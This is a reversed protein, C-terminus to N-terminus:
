SAAKEEAAEGLIRRRDAEDCERRYEEIAQQWERTLEDEPLWGAAPNASRLPLALSVM